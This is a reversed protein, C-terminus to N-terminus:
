KLQKIKEIARNLSELKKDRDKRVEPYKNLEWKSLAKEILARENELIQLAYDM